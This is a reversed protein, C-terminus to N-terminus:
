QLVRADGQDSGRVRPDAQDNSGTCTRAGDDGARPRRDSRVQAPADRATRDRRVFRRDDVDSVGRGTERAPEGRAICRIEAPDGAGICEATADTSRKARRPGRAFLSPRENNAKSARILYTLPSPTNLNIANRQM